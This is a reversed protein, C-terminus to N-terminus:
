DEVSAVEELDCNDPLQSFFSDIQGQTAELAAAVEEDAPAASARAYLSPCSIWNTGLSHAKSKPKSSPCDHRLRGLWAPSLSIRAM